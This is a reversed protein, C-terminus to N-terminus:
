LVPSMNGFFELREEAPLLNLSLLANNWQFYAEDREQLLEQFESSFASGGAQLFAYIADTNAQTGAKKDLFNQILREKLQQTM